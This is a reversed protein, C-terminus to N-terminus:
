GGTRELESVLEGSTLVRLLPYLATRRYLDLTKRHIEETVAATCDELIITKFDCCISDMATTLVCFNTTIGAVACLSVKRERLWRELSTRFFASFRPKPLWFDGEGRGLEDIVEAGTTGELSHPKMRGTFIFDDQRFADTSFVVPWGRAKFVSKINNIPGIIRAAPASIPFKNKEDLNDKVMDIVLLAPIM